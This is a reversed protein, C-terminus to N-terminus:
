PFTSPIIGLNLTNGGPLEGFMLRLLPRYISLIDRETNVDDQHLSSKMKEVSPAVKCLARPPSVAPTRSSLLGVVKSVSYTILWVSEPQFHINNQKKRGRKEM